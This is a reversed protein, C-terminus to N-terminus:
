VGEDKASHIVVWCVIKQGLSIGYHPQNHKPVSQIPKFHTKAPRWADFQIQTVVLASLLQELM